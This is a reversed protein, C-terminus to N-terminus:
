RRIVSVELSNNNNRILCHNSGDKYSITNSNQTLLNEPFEKHYYDIIEDNNMGEIRLNRKLVVASKGFVEKKIYFDIWASNEPDRICLFTKYISLDANYTINCGFIIKGVIICFITISFFSGALIGTKVNKGCGIM